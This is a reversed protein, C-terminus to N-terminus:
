GLFCSGGSQWMSLCGQDVIMAAESGALRTSSRATSSESTSQSSRLHSKGSRCHVDYASNGESTGGLCTAPFHEGALWERGCVDSRTTSQVTSFRYRSPSSTPGHPPSRDTSRIKSPGKCVTVHGRARLRRKGTRLDVEQVDHRHGQGLDHASQAAQVRAQDRDVGVRLLVDLMYTNLRSPPPPLHPRIRPPPSSM